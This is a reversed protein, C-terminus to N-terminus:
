DEGRQERDPSPMPLDKVPSPASVDLGSYADPYDIGFFRRRKEAWAARCPPSTLAAEGMQACARLQATLPDGVPGQVMPQLDPKRAPEERLQVLTMALALGVFVAAGIRAFLKSDM